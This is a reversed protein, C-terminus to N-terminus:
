FQGHLVSSTSRKKAQEERELRREKIGTNRSAGEIGFRKAQQNKYFPSANKIRQSKGAPSIQRNLEKMDSVAQQKDEKKEEKIRSYLDKLHQAEQQSKEGAVRPEPTSADGTPKSRSYNVNVLKDQMSRM